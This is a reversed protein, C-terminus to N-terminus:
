KRHHEHASSGGHSDHDEPGQGLTAIAQTNEFGM